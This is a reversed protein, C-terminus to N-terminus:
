VKKTWMNCSRFRWGWALIPPPDSSAPGILTLESLCKIQNLIGPGYQIEYCSIQWKINRPLENNDAQSRHKNWTYRKHKKKAEGRDRNCIRRNRGSKGTKTEPVGKRELWWSSPDEPWSPPVVRWVRQPSYVQLKNITTTNINTKTSNNHSTKNHHQKTNMLNYLM